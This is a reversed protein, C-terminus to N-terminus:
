DPTAAATSGGGSGGPAPAPRDGAARPTPAARAPSPPAPRPAPPPPRSPLRSRSPAAGAPATPHYGPESPALLQADDRVGGVGNSTGVAILADRNLLAGIAVRVRQDTFVFRAMWWQWIRCGLFATGALCVAAGIQGLYLGAHRPGASGVALGAATTLLWVALASDVVVLHRRTADIVLEGPALYREMARGPTVEGTM